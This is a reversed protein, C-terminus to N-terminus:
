ILSSGMHKNPIPLQHVKPYGLRSVRFKLGKARFSFGWLGLARSMCGPSPSSPNEPVAEAEARSSLLTRIPNRAEPSLFGLVM